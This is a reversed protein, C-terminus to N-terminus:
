AVSISLPYSRAGSGMAWADLTSPQTTAKHIHAPSDESPGERMPRQRDQCAGNQEVKRRAAAQEVMMRAARFGSAVYALRQVHGHQGRSRKVENSSGFQYGSISRERLMSRRAIGKRQVARRSRRRGRLEWRRSTFRAFSHQGEVLGAGGGNKWAAEIWLFYM